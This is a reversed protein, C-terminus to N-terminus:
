TNAYAAPWTCGDESRCSAIWLSPVVLVSAYHMHVFSLSVPVYGAPFWGAPKNTTVDDPWKFGAWWGIENAKAVVWIQDGPEFCAETPGAPM